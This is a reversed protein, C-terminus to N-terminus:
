QVKGFIQRGSTHRNRWDEWLVLFADSKPSFSVAPWWRIGPAELDSILFEDSLAGGTSMFKGYIDMNRGTPPRRLDYWVILFRDANPDYAVSPAEQYDIESAIMFPPKSLSGDGTRVFAGYVDLGNQRDMYGPTPMERYYDRGASWAVFYYDEGPAFSAAYLSLPTCGNKELAILFSSGLPGREAHVFTGIVAKLLRDPPISKTDRWVVFFQDHRPDFLVSPSDQYNGELALAFEGGELGGDAGVYRGFIKDVTATRNDTWLVLFRQRVPDFALNPFKQSVGRRASVLFEQGHPTGDADFLRGYIDSDIDAADRWDTWVVLFRDNVPDFAVASFGQSGKARTIPIDASVARGRGDVIRGYVDLGTTTKNRYDLWTSFFRDRKPDHALSPRGQIGGVESIPFDAGASPAGQASAAGFVLALIALLLRM